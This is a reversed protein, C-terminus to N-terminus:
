NTCNEGHPLNKIKMSLVGNVVSLNNRCKFAIKLYNHAITILFLLLVSKVNRQIEMAFLNM